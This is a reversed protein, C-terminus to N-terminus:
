KNLTDPNQRTDVKNERLWRYLGDNMINAEIIRNRLDLLQVSKGVQQFNFGVFTMSDYHVDEKCTWDRNFFIYPHYSYSLCICVTLYTITQMFLHSILQINLSCINSYSYIKSLLCEKNAFM